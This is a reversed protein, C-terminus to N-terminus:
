PPFGDNQAITDEALLAVLLNAHLWAKALDADKAPLRDMHLLSKMRKFALEVQWRLRYLAGIQTATHTREPLSTLLMIHDACALTRGDLKGRQDKSAKRRAKGRAKVAAEPTKPIMVLRMALPAFDGRPKRVQVATDVGGAQAATHSLAMWDIPRGDPHTLRVSNWTVRVLVDAGAAIIGSLAQANAYNRDGLYLAGPEVGLLDLREGQTVRTLQAGAIRQQQADWNMHLRWADSGAVMFLSGDAIIVHQDAMGAMVAHLTPQAAQSLLQSCLAEMWNAARRFRQMLAVDSMDAVGGDAALAATSRLSLGGVAYMLLLRLLDAAGKIKRSRLVAKHERASADLAAGDGLRAILHQLDPPDPHSHTM